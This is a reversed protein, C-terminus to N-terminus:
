QFIGIVKGVGVIKAGELVQFQVGVKLAGYCVEPSYMFIVKANVCIGFSIPEDPGEIFSIGLYEGNGVRLHPRYPEKIYPPHTRGGAEPSIFEIRVNAGQM